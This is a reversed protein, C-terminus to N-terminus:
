LRNQVQFARLLGVPDSLTQTQQPVFSVLLGQHDFYVTIVCCEFSLTQQAPSPDVPRRADSKTILVSSNKVTQARKM